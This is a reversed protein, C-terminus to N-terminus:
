NRKKKRKKKEGQPRKKGMWVLSIQGRISGDHIMISASRDSRRARGTVWGRSDNRVIMMVEFGGSTMGTMHCGGMCGLELMRRM